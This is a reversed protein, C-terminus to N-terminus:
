YPMKASIDDEGLKSKFSKSIYLKSSTDFTMTLSDGRVTVLNDIYRVEAQNAQRPSRLLNRVYMSLLFRYFIYPMKKM